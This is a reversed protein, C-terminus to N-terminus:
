WTMRYPAYEGQGHLAANLRRAQTGIRESMAQPSERHAPRRLRCDVANMMLLRVRLPLEGAANLDMRAGRGVLGLTARDVVPQRFEEMLDFVLGPHARPGVHLLGVRPELAAREVACWVRSQLLAYGYNLLKNLVDRASHGRRGPFAVAPPILGALGSWYWAAARAELLLLASRTQALPGDSLALSDARFRSLKEAARELSERVTNARRAYKTHYLLLSRQNAIKASVMARAIRTGTADHRAAIQRNIADSRRRARAPALRAFPIGTRTCLIV